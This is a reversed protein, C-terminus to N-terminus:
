SFRATFVPASTPQDAGPADEVTVGIQEVGKADFPMSTVATGDDAVEFIGLPTASPGTIAWVEYVKGPPLPDLGHVDIVALRDDPLYIIRGAANGSVNIVTRDSDRGQLSVNWAVLGVVLVALASALGYGLQPNSFWGRITDGIGHRPAVSIPARQPASEARVAEMLRSKLAPPPDIEPAALALSAAAAKLERMEPHKDCSELHASGAAREEEPLAGLAYAGALEEIEECNM